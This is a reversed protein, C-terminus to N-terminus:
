TGEKTERLINRIMKELERRDLQKYATATAEYTSELRAFKQKFNEHQGELKKNEKQLRKLEEKLPKIEIDAIQYVSVNGMAGLYAEAIKTEELRLYENDLYEVHGMLYHIMDLPLSINTRFFKRLSHLHYVRRKTSKDREGYGAKNCALNWMFRGTYTSWPFVKEGSYDGWKGRKKLSDKIKLWDLIADRAEYSFFVTRGGGNKAIKDKIYVRPPDSTFDFDDKMLELTEGSRAGSSILFLTQAKAKIDSYALIKKLMAKTPSKDRTEARVRKPMFGRNRIKRWAKSSIQIDHDEFFVKVIQGYCHITKTPKDKLAQLFTRIDHETDPKSQIYSELSDIGLVEKFKRIATRYNRQTNYNKFENLWKALIPEEKELNLTKTAM